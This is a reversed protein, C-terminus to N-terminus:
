CLIDSSETSCVRMALFIIIQQSINTLLEQKYKYVRLKRLDLAICNATEGRLISYQPTLTHNYNSALPAVKWVYWPSLMNYKSLFVHYHGSHVLGVRKTSNKKITRLENFCYRVPLCTAVSLCM